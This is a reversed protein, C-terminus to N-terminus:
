WSWSTFAHLGAQGFKMRGKSNHWKQFTKGNLIMQKHKAPPLISPNLQQNGLLASVLDMVDITCTTPM